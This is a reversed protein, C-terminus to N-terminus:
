KPMGEMDVPPYYSGPASADVRAFFEDHTALGRQNKAATQRWINWSAPHLRRAEAIPGAAEDARDRRLLAQALRFQVHAGTIDESPLPLRARAADPDFVHRSATGQEVWDRLADLYVDRIATNRAVADAAMAGTARDLGQRFNEGVGATEVPRVVRRAEDIWVAQPVNVMNYLDAVLHNRDILSPHDPHAAEIFPRAAEPDADM